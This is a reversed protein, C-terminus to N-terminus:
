SISKLIKKFSTPAGCIRPAQYLEVEHQFTPFFNIKEKLNTIIITILSLSLNIWM